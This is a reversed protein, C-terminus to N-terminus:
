LLFGALERVATTFDCKQWKMWFDIISGGGCGAFCHWYNESPHVAFSQIRDQHFPCLGRGNDNLQVFKGIFDYAPISNKIRDSLNVGEGNVHAFEPKSITPATTNSRHYDILEAPVTQPNCLLRIQAAMTSALFKGEPTVFAYRQGTRRHIGFPLRILSGPGKGLQSQKPFMEIGDLSFRKVLGAGFERAIKGPMQRPLFLWLHGGRRSPELYTTTGTQFLISAMKVLSQFQCEDDADFVLFRAQSSQDLIYTGLTIDGKLHALIHNLSLTKPICVYRGDELQRAYLDRRQFFTNMIGEALHPLEPYSIDVEKLVM